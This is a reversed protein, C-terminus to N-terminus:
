RHCGAAGPLASGSESFLVVDEDPAGRLDTQVQAGGAWSGAGMGETFGLGPPALIVPM